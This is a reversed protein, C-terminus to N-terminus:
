AIKKEKLMLGTVRSIAGAPLLYVEVSTGPKFTEAKNPPWIEIFAETEGTAPDTYEVHLLIDGMQSPTVHMIKGQVKQGEQFLRFYANWEASDKAGCGALFLFFPLLLFRPKYKM